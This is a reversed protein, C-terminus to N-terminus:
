QVEYAIVTDVPKSKRNKSAFPKVCSTSYSTSLPKHAQENQSFYCDGCM